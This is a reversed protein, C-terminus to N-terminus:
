SPEKALSVSEPVFEEHPKRRALPAATSDLADLLEPRNGLAVTIREIGGAGDAMLFERDGRRQSADHAQASLGCLMEAYGSDADVGILRLAAQASATSTTRGLFAADVWNAVGANIIDEANQTSILARVNHKRSDRGTKRLLERGSAVRQLEHAEDLWLGKRDHLDRAYISRQAYWGALYLLPM